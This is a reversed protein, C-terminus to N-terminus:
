FGSLVMVRVESCDADTATVVAAIFLGNWCFTNNMKYLFKELKSKKRIRIKLNTIYISIYIKYIGGSSTIEKPIHSTSIGKNHYISIRIM